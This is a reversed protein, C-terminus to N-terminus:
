RANDFLVTTQNTVVNLKIMRFTPEDNYRATPVNPATITERYILSKGDPSWDLDAAGNYGEPIPMSKVNFLSGSSIDATWLGALKDARNAFDNYYGTFAIKGWGSYAIQTVQLLEPKYTMLVSPDVLPGISNRPGSYLAGGLVSTPSYSNGCTFLIRAVYGDAELHGELWLYSKIAQSEPTLVPNGDKLVAVPSAHSIIVHLDSGDPRVGYIDSSEKEGLPALFTILQRDPSVALSRAGRLDYDLTVLLDPSLKPAEDTSGVLPVSLRYLGLAGGTTEALFMLEHDGYWAVDHVAAMGSVLLVPTQTTGDANFDVMYIYKAWPDRAQNQITAAYAVRDMAPSLAFSKVGGDWTLWNYGGDSRTMLLDSGHDPDSGKLFLVGGYASGGSAYDGVLSMRGSMIGFISEGEASRAVLDGLGDLATLPVSLRLRYVYNEDFLYGEHYFNNDDGDTRELWVANGGSGPVPACEGNCLIDNATDATLGKDNSDVELEIWYPAYKTGGSNWPYFYRTNQQTQTWWNPPYGVKYGYMPDRVTHWDTKGNPDGEEIVPTPQRLELMTYPGLTATASMYTTTSAAPSQVSVGVGRTEIPPPPQAVVDMPSERTPIPPLAVNLVQPDNAPKQFWKGSLILAGLLFFIAIVAAMVPSAARVLRRSFPLTPAIERAPETAGLALPAAPLREEKGRLEEEKIERIAHFLGTRLEPEPQRMPSEAFIVAMEVYQLLRCSCAECTAVHAEVLEREGATVEDDVFRSILLQIEECSSQQMTM